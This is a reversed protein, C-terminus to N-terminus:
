ILRLVEDRRRAPVTDRVGESTWQFHAGIWDVEPGFAGKHLAVPFGLVALWLLTIALLRARKEATGCAQLLIDDVNM